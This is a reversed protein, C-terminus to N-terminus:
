EALYKASLRKLTRHTRVTMPGVTKEIAALDLETDSFNGRPLWYLERGHIALRDEKSSLSLVKARGAENPPHHFLAVQVKGGTKMQKETFVQRAAISRVEQGSRLYTPVLYDLADALGKKIEGSLAEPDSRPSDFVINGSALFPQVGTFGMALFHARLEDNTIRRGGLNMGRLFAVYRGM